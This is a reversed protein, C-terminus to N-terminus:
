HDVDISVKKDSFYCEVFPHIDVIEGSGILKIMEIHIETLKM